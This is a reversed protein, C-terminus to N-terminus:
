RRATQSAGPTAAFVSYSGKSRWDTMVVIHSINKDDLDIWVPVHKIPVLKEKGGDYVIRVSKVRPKGSAADIKLLTYRGDVQIYERENKAPTPSALEVWSSKQATKQDSYSVREATEDKGPAAAVAVPILLGLIATIRTM